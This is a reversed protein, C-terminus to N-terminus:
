YELHAFPLQSGPHYGILQWSRKGPNVGNAPDGFVAMLDARLLLNYFSRSNEYMEDLLAAKQADDLEPFAEQHRERCLNMLRGLHENFYDLVKEFGPTKLWRQLFPYAHYELCGPWIMDLLAKVTREEDGAFLGPDKTPAGLGLRPVLLSALMFKLFEKRRM